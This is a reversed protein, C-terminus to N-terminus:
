WGPENILVPFDALKRKTLSKSGSMMELLERSIQSNAEHKDDEPLSRAGGQKRSGTVVLLLYSFLHLERAESHIHDVCLSFASEKLRHSVLGKFTFGSM